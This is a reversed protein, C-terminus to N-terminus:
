YLRKFKCLDHVKLYKNNKSQATSFQTKARWFERIEKFIFLLDLNFCVKFFCSFDIQLTVM